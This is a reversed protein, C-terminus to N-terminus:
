TLEMMPLTLTEMTGAYMVTPVNASREAHFNKFVVLVTHKAHIKGNYVCILNNLMEAASSSDFYVPVIVTHSKREDNLRSGFSGTQEKCSVDCKM